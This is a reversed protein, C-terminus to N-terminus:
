TPVFAKSFLQFDPKINIKTSKRAGPDADFRFTPDPDPEFYFTPDPDADFRHLDALNKVKFHNNDLFFITYYPIHCTITYLM